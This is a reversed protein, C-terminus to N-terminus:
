APGSTLRHFVTGGQGDSLRWPEGFWSGFRGTRIKIQKSRLCYITPLGEVKGLISEKGVAMIVALSAEIEFIVFLCSWMAKGQSENGASIRRKIRSSIEPWFCRPQAWHAATQLSHNAMRSGLFKEWSANCGDLRSSSFVRTIRCLGRTWCMQRLISRGRYAQGVQLRFAVM